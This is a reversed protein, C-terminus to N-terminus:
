SFSIEEGRKNRIKITNNFRPIGDNSLNQYKVTSTLGILSEKNKWLLKQYELTGKPVSDFEKEDKTILRLIICGSRNGVGESYGIIDFEEDLFTKRKLLDKTRKHQYLSNKIRIMQGEYGSEIYNEYFDDSEKHDSCYDTRVFLILDSNLEYLWNKLNISREEFTLKSNADVYDYVHYQLINEAEILDEKTPKTKKSLSVIKEFNDKLSHNYIEGDFAKINPYKSFLFELTKKIHDVTHFLKWLRSFANNRTVILRIGDLKPQSYFPFKLEDKYDDFNKALMPNLRDGISDYLSEKNETYGEDIKKQWKSRAEQVAQEFPSTENSKGINKGECFTSSSKVKKGNVQGSITFFSNNEVFISWEQEARSTSLKYLKPFEM